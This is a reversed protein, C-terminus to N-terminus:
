FSNRDLSVFEYAEMYSLWVGRYWGCIISINGGYILIAVIDRSAIHMPNNKCRMFM